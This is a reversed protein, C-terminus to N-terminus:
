SFIHHRRHVAQLVGIAIMDAFMASGGYSVFPLPLGTVPAIGITMGINIFAQIGFWVAIGSAALLGFMDDAGAAIRLARFILIGLLVIVAVAGVFGLEEGAVTFIFDTQQSPVFSGAVLQGHFLGQGFMGGSGIAIKAQAASYGSGLPNASPNLFATLREMQYPKLLNMSWVTLVGLIGAAGLAGVWVLRIGSLIIMGVVVTLLVITVGLAPEAMVMGLVPAALAVVILLQRLTPPSARSRTEGFVMAILLILGLKAYESPEVQFGGPLSIWAHAGNVTSGVPTLVALLGLCSAVYVFPAYIRLMRYDLASVVVMLVLGIAVNLLQKELYSRPNTGVQELEPQTASWVLLTGILALTLVTAVLVWDAQRLPSNKAFARERWTRPRLVGGSSHTGGYEAAPRVQDLGRFGAPRGTGLGSM